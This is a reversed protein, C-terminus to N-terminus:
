DPAVAGEEEGVPVVADGECSCRTLSGNRDATYVGAPVRM